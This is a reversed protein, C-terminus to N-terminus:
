RVVCTRGCAQAHLHAIEAPTLARGQNIFFAPDLVHELRVAQLFLPTADPTAQLIAHLSEPTIFPAVCPIRFEHEVGSTRLLDISSRVSDGADARIEKPYHAPDAKIDLAVYDLLHMRLLHRLVDPRSGNTDLKIAYGLSKLTACFSFLGDHLTPEGGSIVVGELVNRRRALFATVDTLTLPPQRCAVLDANHCYPCLFNCGQTFVIASIKGPFDLLSTKQLGGIRM